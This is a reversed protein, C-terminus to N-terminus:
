NDLDWRGKSRASTPPSGSSQRARSAAGIAQLDLSPWRNALSRSWGLDTQGKFREYGEPPESSKQAKPNTLWKLLETRLDVEPDDRFAAFARWCQLDGARTPAFGHRSLIPGEVPLCVSQRVLLEDLENNRAKAFNEGLQAQFAPHLYQMILERQLDKVKESTLKSNHTPMAVVALAM